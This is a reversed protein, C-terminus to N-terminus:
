QLGEKELEKAAEKKSEQKQQEFKQDVSVKDKIFVEKAAITTVNILAAFLLWKPLTKHSNDSKIVSLFALLTAIGAPLFAITGLPLIVFTIGTLLFVSATIILFKRM